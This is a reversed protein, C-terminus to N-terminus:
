VDNRNVPACLHLAPARVNVFDVIRVLDFIVREASQHAM